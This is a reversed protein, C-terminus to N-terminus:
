FLKAKSLQNSRGKLILVEVISFNIWIYISFLEPVSIMAISFLIIFYYIYGKIYQNRNYNLIKRLDFYTKFLYGFFSFLGIIGVNAALTSLLDPARYSGFGLGMFPHERLMKFGYLFKNFRDQGSFNELTLKNFTDYFIFNIVDKFFLYIFVLIIFFSFYFLIKKNININYMKGIIIKEFFMIFLFIFIGLIFSTSTSLIGVFLGLFLIFYHKKKLCFILGLIPAFYLVLMSPELFVASIRRGLYMGVGIRNNFIKFYPIPYEFTLYQYIAWLSIFLLSYIQIKILNEIILENNKSNKSIYNKLFLYLFFCFILYFTQTINTSILDEYVPLFYIRILKFSLSLISVIVFSFLWINPKLIKENKFLNILQKIIFLIGLYYSIQLGFNLNNFNIVSSAVFPSFFVTCYLLYNNPLFFLIVGLPLIFYGIITIELKM